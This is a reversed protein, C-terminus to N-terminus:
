VEKSLTIERYYGPRKAIYVPLGYSERLDNHQVKLYLCSGNIEAEIIQVDFDKSHNDSEDYIVIGLKKPSVPFSFFISRKGDVEIVRDAYKSNARGYDSAYARFKKRGKCTITIHLAFARNNSDYEKLFM